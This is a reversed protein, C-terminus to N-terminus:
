SARPECSAWHARRPMAWSCTTRTGRSAPWTSAGARLEMVFLVYYTKLGTPTWVEATFFDAGAIQGWHAKLFTRWSTPRDPSPSIGNAKLTKAITSRAVRHGVKRLEGQIRCYGWGNNDRAMRVILERIAPLVPPRAAPRNRKRPSARFRRHRRRNPPRPATLDRTRSLPTSHTGWAPVPDNPGAGTRTSEAFPRLARIRTLLRGGFRGGRKAHRAPRAFPPEGGRLARGHGDVERVVARMRPPSGTTPCPYSWAIM